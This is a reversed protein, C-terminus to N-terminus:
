LDLSLVLLVGEDCVGVVLQEPVLEGGDLAGNVLTDSDLLEVVFLDVKAVLDGGELVGNEGEPLFVFVEPDLPVLVLDVVLAVRLSQGGDLLLLELLLQPQALTLEM